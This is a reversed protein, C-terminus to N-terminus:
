LAMMLIDCWELIQDGALLDIESMTFGSLESLHGAKETAVMIAWLSVANSTSPVLM